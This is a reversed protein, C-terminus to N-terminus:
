KPLGKVLIYLATLFGGALASQDHIIPQMFMFVLAGALIALLCVALIKLNDNM